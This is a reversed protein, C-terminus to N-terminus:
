IIKNKLGKEYGKRMADGLGLKIMADSFLKSKCSWITTAKTNFFGKVQVFVVYSNECLFCFKVPMAVSIIKNNPDNVRHTKECGCKFTVKDNYKTSTLSHQKQTKSERLATIVEDVNKLLKVIELEVGM